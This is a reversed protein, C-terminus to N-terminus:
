NVTKPKLGFEEMIADNAAPIKSPPQVQTQVRSTKPMRGDRDLIERSAQLRLVADEGQLHSALVEISQPVLSAVRMKMREVDKMLKEDLGTNHAEKLEWLRRKYSASKRLKLAHPRSIKMLDSIGDPDMIYCYDMDALRSAQVKEIDSTQQVIKKLKKLREATEPDIPKPPDKRVRKYKGTLKSKEFNEGGVNTPISM